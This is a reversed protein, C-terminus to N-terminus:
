GRRALAGAYSGGMSTREYTCTFFAGSFSLKVNSAGAACSSGRISFVEYVFSTFCWPMHEATAKVPGMGAVTSACKEEAEAGKFIASEIDFEVETGTNKRVSGTIEAKTCTITGLDGGKGDTGTFTANVKKNLTAVVKENAKLPETSTKLLPSAAAPSPLLGIGLWALSVALLAAYWGAAISRKQISLM